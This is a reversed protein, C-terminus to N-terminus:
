NLRLRFIGLIRLFDSMKILSKDEHEASKELLNIFKTWNSASKATIKKHINRFLRLIKQENQKLHSLCFLTRGCVSAWCGAYDCATDTKLKSKTNDQRFYLTEGPHIEFGVSQVFDQYSIRGDGDKDFFAFVTKSQSDTVPFGWHGLFHLLDKQELYPKNDSNFDHFAKKVTKWQQRMKEVLRDLVDDAMLAEAAMKKDRGKRQEQKKLHQEYSPNRKSDHRFIFSALNHIRNGVWKSFDAYTLRGSGDAKSNVSEM